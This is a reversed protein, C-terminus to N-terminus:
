DGHSSNLYLPHGCEPDEKPVTTYSAHFGRELNIGDSKFDIYLWNGKSRRTYFRHINCIKISEGGDRIRVYDYKCTGKLGPRELKFVVFTLEIVMGETANIFFSCDVSNPYTADPDNPMYGPSTFDGSLGDLYVTDSTGECTILTLDLPPNPADTNAQPITTESLIENKDTAEYSAYFGQRTLEGDTYLEVLMWNDRSNISYPARKNCLLPGIIGYADSLRIHDF